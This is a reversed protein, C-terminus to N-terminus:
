NPKNGHEVDSQLLIEWATDVDEWAVDDPYRYAFLLTAAARVDWSADAPYTVAPEVDFGENAASLYARGDEGFAEVAKQLAASVDNWDMTANNIRGNDYATRLLSSFEGLAKHDINEGVFYESM